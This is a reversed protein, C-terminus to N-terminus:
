PAPRRRTFRRLLRVGIRSPAPMRDRSCIYALLYCSAPESFVGRRTAVEEVSFSSAELCSGAYNLGLAHQIRFGCRRLMFEMEPATYEYDHDPDIFATQHLRTVAANPTDLAFTGGPRLVRHVQDFVQWADERTVHEISEGCYVLDFSHSAYASLDTM